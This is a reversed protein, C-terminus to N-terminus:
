MLFARVSLDSTGPGDLVLLLYQIACQSTQKEGRVEGVWGWGAEMGASICSISGLIKKFTLIRIWSQDKRIKCSVYTHMKSSIQIPFPSIKSLFQNKM